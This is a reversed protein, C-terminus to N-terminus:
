VLATFPGDQIQHPDARLNGLLVQGFEVTAFRVFHGPLHQLAETQAVVQHGKAVLLRRWAGLDIALGPNTAGDGRLEGMVM